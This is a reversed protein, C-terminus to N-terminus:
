RAEQYIVNENDWNVASNTDIRRFVWDAYKNNDGTKVPAKYWHIDEVPNVLLGDVDVTHNNIIRVMNKPFLFKGSEYEIIGQYGNEIKNGPFGKYPIKTEPTGKTRVEKSPRANYDGEM